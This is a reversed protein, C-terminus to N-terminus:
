RVEDAKNEFIKAEKELNNERCFEALDEYRKVASIKNMWIIKATDEPCADIPRKDSEGLHNTGSM